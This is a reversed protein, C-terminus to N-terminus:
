VPAKTNELNFLRVEVWQHGRYFMPNVAPGSLATRLSPLKEAFQELIDIEKVFSGRNILRKSLFYTIAVGGLAPLIGAFM